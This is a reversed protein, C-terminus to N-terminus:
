LFVPAGDAECGTLPFKMSPAPELRAVPRVHVAEVAFRSRLRKVISAADVAMAPMPIVDVLLTSADSQTCRYFDMGDVGSLAEDVDRTTVWRGGLFLMERLRGHFEICRWDSHSCDCEEGTFRALDGVVYRLLPMVRGATTTVAVAGLEGDPVSGAGSVLEVVSHDEFVHWRGNLCEVAVQCGCLETASYVNYNPAKFLTSLTRRTGSSAYQYSLLVLDVPPLDLELREARRGFWHLYTPNALIFNPRYEWLEQVFNRILSDPASFLDETSNLFLVLGYRIREQLSARGFHCETSSCIPSTLVATKPPAESYPLAWIDEYGPPLRELTMDSIVQVREDTTGSTRAFELSGDSLRPAYEIGEALLEHFNVRIDRKWMLPFKPLDELSGMDQLNKYSASRRYFPVERRLFSVLECLADDRARRQLEGRFDRQRALLQRKTLDERLLGASKLFNALEGHITGRAFELLPEHLRIHLGTRSDRLEVTSPDVRYFKVQPHLTDSM